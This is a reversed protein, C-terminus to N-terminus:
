SFNKAWEGNLYDFRPGEGSISPEIINGALYSGGRMLDLQVNSTMQELKPDRAPANYLKIYDLAAMEELDPVVSGGDKVISNMGRVPGIREAFFFLLEKALEVNESNKNVGIFLDEAVKVYLPNDASVDNKYPFPAFKIAAPDEGMEIAVNKVQPIAWSGTLMFGVEQSALARRSNEWQDTVTDLEVQGNACLDALFSLSQHLPTGEAWPAEAETLSNAYAPDEAISEALSDWFRLPWKSGANVWFPIVGNEKLTGCLAVLEDFNKPMEGNNYTDLVKQNYLLGEYVVGFTIAYSQGGTAKYDGYYYKEGLEASDGLPAFYNPLEEVPASLSLAAVDELMGSKMMTVIQQETRAAANVYEIESVEPHEVKFQEFIAEALPWNPDESPTMNFSLTLKVDGSAKSEGDGTASPSTDSDSEGTGCAAMLAVMAGVLALAMWKLHRKM